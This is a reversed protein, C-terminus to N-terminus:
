SQVVKATELIRWGTERFSPFRGMTLGIKSRQEDSITFALDLGTTDVVQRHLCFQITFVRERMAWNDLKESVELARSLFTQHVQQLERGKLHRLAINSGFICWWGLSEIWDGTADDLSAWGTELGDLMQAVGDDPAIRGCEVGVEILGGRCTNAFGRLRDDNFEEALEEHLDMSRNLDIDAAAAHDAILEPEMAMLRRRTHGRIYHVYAVRKWDFREAPPNTEYWRDLVEAIGLAPTLDWLTYHANALTAQLILRMRVSLGGLRLGHQVAEQVKVYRGLGDWGAAERVCAHARQDGNKAIRYMEQAFDVVKRHDGARNSELVLENLEEFSRDPKTTDASGAGSWIADAVEGVPWELVDALRMIYDLKPNGSEPLLKTPDRGLARALKARSWGRSVRSLELLTRLRERRVDSTNM